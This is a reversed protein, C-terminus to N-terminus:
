SGRKGYNEDLHTPTLHSRQKKRIQISTDYSKKTNVDITSATVISSRIVSNKHPNSPITSTYDM